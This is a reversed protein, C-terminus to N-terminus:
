RAPRRAPQIFKGGPQHCLWHGNGQKSVIGPNISSLFMKASTYDNTVPLQVFADGAFVILGVRDNTVQEVLRSIAQKAQELRNPQIDQAMMSNSVDLAIILEIGKM